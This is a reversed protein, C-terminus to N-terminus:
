NGEEIGKEDSHIGGLLRLHSKQRVLKLKRVLM